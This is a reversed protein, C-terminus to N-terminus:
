LIRGYAEWYWFYKHSRVTWDYDPYEKELAKLLQAQTIHDVEASAIAGTDHVTVEIAANCERRGKAYFKM